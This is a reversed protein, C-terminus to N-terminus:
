SKLSEIHDSLEQTFFFIEEDNILGLAQLWDEVDTEDMGAVIKQLEEILKNARAYERMIAKEQKTM